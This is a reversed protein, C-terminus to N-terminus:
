DERITKFITENKYQKLIWKAYEVLEKPRQGKPQKTVWLELNEIRNDSRDGNLHHVNEFSELKRGLFQEMIYRHYLVWDRSLGSKGKGVKIFTYRQGNVKFTGIPSERQRQIGNPYRRNKEHELYHIKRYCSNCLGRCLTPRDCGKICKGKQTKTRGM